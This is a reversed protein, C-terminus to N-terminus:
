TSSNQKLREPLELKDDILTEVKVRAVKAYAILTLLSPVRAGTEYESIRATSLNRRLRAILQSQSMNM